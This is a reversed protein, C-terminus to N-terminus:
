CRNRFTRQETALPPIASMADAREFRRQHGMESTSHRRDFDASAWTFTIAAM